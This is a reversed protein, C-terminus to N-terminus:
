FFSLELKFNYCIEYKGELSSTKRHINKNYKPPIGKRGFAKKQTPQAFLILHFWLKEM